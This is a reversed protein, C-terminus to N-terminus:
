NNGRMNGRREERGVLRGGGCREEEEQQQLRAARLFRLGQGGGTFLLGFL